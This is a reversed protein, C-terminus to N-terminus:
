FWIYPGLANYFVQLLQTAYGYWGSSIQNRGVPDGQCSDFGAAVLVLDPSFEEAVPIVINSFIYTYDNDTYGKNSYGLDVNINFGVGDGIGEKSHDGAEHFCLGPEPEQSHNFDFAM